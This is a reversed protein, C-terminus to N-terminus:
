PLRETDAEAITKGCRKCTLDFSIRVSPNYLARSVLESMKPYLERNSARTAKADDVKKQEEPRHTKAFCGASHITDHPECCVSWLKTDEVYVATDCWCTM